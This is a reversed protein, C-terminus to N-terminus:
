GGTILPIIYINDGDKLDSALGNQYRIHSGNIFVPLSDKLRGKQNCLRMYVDPHSNKLSELAKEVTVQDNESFESVIEQRGISITLRM